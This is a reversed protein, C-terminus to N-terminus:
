QNLERAEKLSTNPIALLRQMKQAETDAYTKVLTDIGSAIQELLKKSQQELVLMSQMPDTTGTVATVSAPAAESPTTTPAEIAAAKYGPKEWYALQGKAHLRDTLEERTDTKLIKAMKKNIEEEQEKNKYAIFAEEAGVLVGGVAGIVGARGLAGRAGAAGGGGLGGGSKILIEALGGLTGIIKGIGGTLLLGLSGLLIGALGNGSLWKYIQEVWSAIHGAEVVAKQVGDRVDLSAQAEKDTRAKGRTITGEVRATDFVAKLGPLAEQARGAMEQLADAFPNGAADLENFRRQYQKGFQMQLREYEKEEIDNRKKRSLIMLQRTDTPSMGVQAALVGLQAAGRIRQVPTAQRRLKEFSIALQKAREIGIGMVQFEEVRQHINAIVQEREAITAKALGERIEQDNLIQQDWEVIQEATINTMRSMRTLDAIYKHSRDSLAKVGLTTSALSTTLDLAAAGLKGSLIPDMGALKMTESRLSIMTANFTDAGGQVAFITEKNAQMLKQLDTVQMLLQASAGIFPAVGTKYYLNSADILQRAAKEFGDVLLEASATKLYNVFSIMGNPGRISDTIAGVIGGRKQLSDGLAEKLSIKKVEMDLRKLDKVASDTAVGFEKSFVEFIGAMRDIEQPLHESKALFDDIFAINHKYSDGLTKQLNGNERMALMTRKSANAFNRTHEENTRDFTKLTAEIEKYAKAQENLSKVFKLLGGEAKNLSKGMSKATKEVEQELRGKKFKDATDALAETISYTARSLKGYTSALNDMAKILAQESTSLTPM